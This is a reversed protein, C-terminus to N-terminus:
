VWNGGNKINTFLDVVGGLRRKDLEPRSFTKSLVGKLRKNKKEISRMTEDIVQGIEPTHAAEAIVNWRAMPPVFFIREAKYKNIKEEFGEGEDVLQCYREDFKDSIYKLFIM